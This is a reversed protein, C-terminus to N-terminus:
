PLVDWGSLELRTARDVLEQEIWVRLGNLNERKAPLVAHSNRASFIVPVEIRLKVEIHEAGEPFYSPTMEAVSSIVTFGHPVRRDRHEDGDIDDLIEEVLAKTETVRTLPDERFLAGAM